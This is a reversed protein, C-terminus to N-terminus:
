LGAAIQHSAKRSGSAAAGAPDPANTGSAAPGEARSRWRAPSPHHASGLKRTSKQWLPSSIVQPSPLDGTGLGQAPGDGRWAQNGLLDMLGFSSSRPTIRHSSMPVETTTMGSSVQGTCHVPRCATTVSGCCM